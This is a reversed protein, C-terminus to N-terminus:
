EADGGDDRGIGYTREFFEQTWPSDGRGARRGGERGDLMRKVDEPSVSVPEWDYKEDSM